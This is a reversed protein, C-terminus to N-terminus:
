QVLLRVGMVLIDDTQEMAGKWELHFQELHNKQEAMTLTHISLVIDKFKKKM